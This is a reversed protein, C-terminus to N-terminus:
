VQISPPSHLNNYMNNYSSETYMNKDSCGLARIYDIYSKYNKVKQNQVYTFLLSVDCSNDEVEEYYWPDVYYNPAYSRAYSGRGGTWNRRGGGGHWNHDRGRGHGGGHWNHYSDSRNIILHIVVGIGFLIIFLPLIKPLGKM